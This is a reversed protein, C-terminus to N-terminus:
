NEFMDNLEKKIDRKTMDKTDKTKKIKPKQTKDKKKRKKFIKRFFKKTKEKFKQIDHDIDVEIEDKDVIYSFIGAFFICSVFGAIYCWVGIPVFM